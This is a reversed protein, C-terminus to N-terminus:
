QRGGSGEEQSTLDDAAALVKAALTLAGDAYRHRLAFTRARPPDDAYMTVACDYDAHGDPDPALTIRRAQWHGITQDNVMIPGHLAM